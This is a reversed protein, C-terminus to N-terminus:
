GEVSDTLDNPDTAQLHMEPPHYACCMPCHVLELEVERFLHVVEEHLDPYRADTPILQM